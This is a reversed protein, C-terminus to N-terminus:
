DNYCLHRIVMSSIALCLETPNTMFRTDDRKYKDDYTDDDEGNDIELILQTNDHKGDVKMRTYKHLHLHRKPETIWVVTHWVQMVMLGKCLMTKTAQLPHRDCASM